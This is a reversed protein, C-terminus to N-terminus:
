VLHMQWANKEKKDKKNTKENQGDMRVKHKKSEVLSRRSNFPLNVSRTQAAISYTLVISSKSM